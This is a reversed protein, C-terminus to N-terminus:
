ARSRLTMDSIYTGNGKISTDSLPGIFTVPCIGAPCPTLVVGGLPFRGKKDNGDLGELKFKDSGTWKLNKWVNQSALLDALTPIEVFDPARLGVKAGTDGTIVATFEAWGNASAINKVNFDGKSRVTVNILDTEAFLVIKKGEFLMEHELKITGSLTNGELTLEDTIVLGAQNVPAPRSSFSVTANKPAIVGVISAGTKATDIDWQLSSYADEVNAPVLKIETLGDVTVTSVVKGVFSVPLGQEPAAPLFVVGGQVLDQLSASEATLVLGGDVGTVVTSSPATLVSVPLSQVGAAVEATVVPAQQKVEDSAGGGGGCAALVSLAVAAM